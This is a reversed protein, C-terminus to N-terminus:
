SQSQRLAHVEKKKMRRYFFYIALLDYPVQLFYSTKIKSGGKEIWEELPVELSTEIVTKRGLHYIARAFVEVDFLWKTIFKEEFVKRALGASLLKAGCQSDYIPMRLMLSIFTAFARGVIHRMAKRKVKSGLRAVRAGTLLHYMKKDNAQNLIYDIQSLPTALDADFYGIHIFDDWSFAANVGQRVAEAKGANKQLQLVKCRKMCHEQVKLLVDQTQDDSGDNVFLFYVQPNINIYAKFDEVPLRKEENFCPIIICTKQM